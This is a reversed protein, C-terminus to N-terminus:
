SGRRLGYLRLGRADTGQNEVRVRCAAGSLGSRALDRSARASLCFSLNRALDRHLGTKRNPVASDSTLLDKLYPLYPDIKKPRDQRFPQPVTTKQNIYKMVTERNFGTSAAIERTSHGDAALKKILYIDDMSLM